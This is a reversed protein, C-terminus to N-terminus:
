KIGPEIMRLYDKLNQLVVDSFFHIFKEKSMTSNLSSIYEARRVAPIIILPYDKQMLIINILLRVTRGNGDIFPHIKVFKYHFKAALLVPDLKNKQEEYWQFLKEMETHIDAPATPKKEDGSIFVQIKRYVGANEDDINKLVFKHINLVLEENLDKKDSVVKYLLEFLQNHNLVENIERITKGAVTLGDELVLKTEGRSLTNGEIANSNYTFEVKFSKQLELIEGKTLPRRSKIKELNEAIERLIDPLDKM